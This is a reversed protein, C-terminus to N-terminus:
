LLKPHFWDTVQMPPLELLVTCYLIGMAVQWVGQTNTHTYKKKKEELENGKADQCMGKLGPM